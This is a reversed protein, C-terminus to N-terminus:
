KEQEMISLLKEGTNNQAGPTKSSSSMNNANIDVVVIGYEYNKEM